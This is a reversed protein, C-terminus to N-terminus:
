TGMKQPPIKQTCAYKFPWKELSAYLLKGGHYFHMMKKKSISKRSNTVPNRATRLWFSLMYM